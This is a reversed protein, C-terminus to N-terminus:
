PKTKKIKKASKARDNFDLCLNIWYDFNKKSKFGNENVYCFGQYVSGKMIMPEFGARKIVTEQHAPDFRCMLKDGSISICMKNNVMFTLGRFMKKEEVGPLQQLAGRVRGALKENYPM